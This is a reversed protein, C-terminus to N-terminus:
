RGQYIVKFTEKRLDSQLQILYMGPQVKNGMADTADWNITNFGYAIESDMKKIMRGNIDYIVFKMFEGQKKEFEIHLNTSFPNPYVNLDFLENSTLSQTENLKQAIIIIQTEAAKLASTTVYSCYISIKANALSSTGYDLPMGSSWIDSAYARGPTGATYRVKVDGEFIFALWVTTGSAVPVSDLLAITQWGATGSVATIDTVGLRSGPYGSADSYVGLM